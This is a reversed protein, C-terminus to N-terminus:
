FLVLIRKKGTDKGAVMRSGTVASSRESSISSVMELAKEGWERMLGNWRVLGISKDLDGIVEM